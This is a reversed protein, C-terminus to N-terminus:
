QSATTSSSNWLPREVHPGTFLQAGPWQNIWRVLSILLGTLQQVPWILGPLLAASLAAPLLLVMVALAMAALTLPALLPAALLNSLVAYLPAAGFYLLQLPLTWFLAALPM